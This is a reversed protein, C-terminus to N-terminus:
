CMWIVSASFEFCFSKSSCLKLKQDNPNRYQKPNLAEFQPNIEEKVAAGCEKASLAGKGVRGPIQIEGVSVGKNEWFESFGRKKDEEPLPCDWSKVVSSM